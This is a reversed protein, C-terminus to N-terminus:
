RSARRHETPADQVTRVEIGQSGCLDSLADMDHIQVSQSGQALQVVYVHREAPVVAFGNLKLLSVRLDVSRVSETLSVNQGRDSFSRQVQKQDDTRHVYLPPRARAKEMLANFNVAHGESLLLVKPLLRRAREVNDAGVVQGLQTRTILLAMRQMARMRDLPVGDVDIGLWRDLRTAVLSRYHNNLDSTFAIWKEDHQFGERNMLITLGGPRVNVEGKFGTAYEPLVGSSATTVHFGANCLVIQADLGANLSDWGDSLQIHGLEIAPSSVTSTPDWTPLLWQEAAVTRLGGDVDELFIHRAHRVYREVSAPVNKAQMPGDPKLELRLTTGPASRHDTLEEFAERRNHIRYSVPEQGRTLTRIEVINAIGFCSLIGIGFQGIPRHGAGAKTLLAQLRPSNTKSAGITAFSEEFVERDMGIGNDSIEIWREGISYRVIIEPEHSPDEISQLYCADEANQLLERM